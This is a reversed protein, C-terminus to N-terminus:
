GRSGMVGGLKWLEHGQSGHPPLFYLNLDLPKNKCHKAIATVRIGRYLFHHIIQFSKGRMQRM